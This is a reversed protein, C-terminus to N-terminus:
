ARAVHPEYTWVKQDKEAVTYPLKVGRQTYDAEIRQHFEEFLSELAVRAMQDSIAQLLAGGYQSWRCSRDTRAAPGGGGRTGRRRGCLGWAPTAGYVLVDSERPAPQAEAGAQEAGLVRDTGGGNVAVWLALLLKKMM